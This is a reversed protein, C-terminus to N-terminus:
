AHHKVLVLDSKTSTSGGAAIIAALAGKSIMCGEVVLTKTLGNAGLIKVKPSRGRFRRVLGKALLTAPSVTEGVVFAAELSHFPGFTVALVFM